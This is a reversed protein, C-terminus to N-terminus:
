RLFNALSLQSLRSTALLSAELQAELAQLRTAADLPDRATAANYAETLAAEEDELGTAAEGARREEVGIEARREVLSDSGILAAAGAAALAGDRLASPPAAGAVAIVALGRLVDRIAPDDARVTFAGRDSGDIEITPASGAGGRYIATQFGGAVDNFYVDLAADLDAATAAGAYIAEVDAIFQDAGALPARDTADGSFVFQGAVSANLSSFAAEIRSRAELAATSLAANDGRGNAALADTAISRAGENIDSLARQSVAAVLGAQQLGQRRVAIADLAARLSSAEGIRGGLAAPLDAIRGTSLEIRATESDRRLAASAASFRQATLLTPPGVTRM